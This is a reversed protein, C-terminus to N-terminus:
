PEDPESNMTQESNMTRRRSGRRRIREANRKAEPSQLYIIFAAIQKLVDEIKADHELRIAEAIVGRDVADILHHQCEALSAKAMRLFRAQAGPEFRVYGESIQSVASAAAERLQDRLRAERHCSEGDVLDYISTKV